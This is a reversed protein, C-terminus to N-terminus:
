RRAVREAHRLRGASRGACARGAGEHRAPRRRHPVGAAAGRVPGGSRRGDGPEADLREAGAIRDLLSRADAAPLPDPGAGNLDVFLAGVPYAARVRHGVRVARTTKGIGGMGVIVVPTVAAPGAGPTLADVLSRILEDRGVFDTM